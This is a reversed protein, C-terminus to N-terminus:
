LDQYCDGVEAAVYDYLERLPPKIHRFFVDQNITYPARRGHYVIERGVPEFLIGLRALHRALRPEMMVIVAHMGRSHCWAAVAMYLGVAIYPFGPFGLHARSGNVVFPVKSEGLRRRYEGKVALRSLEGYRGDYLHDLDIKDSDIADLCHVVVPLKQGRHQPRVLRVTGVVEDPDGRHFILFHDSFADFGDSELKDPFASEDEFELEKCYVQYRVQYALACLVDSDARCIYFYRDFCDVLRTDTM